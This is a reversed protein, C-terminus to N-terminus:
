CNMAFTTFFIPRVDTDTNSEARKLNRKVIIFVKVPSKSYFSPHEEAGTMMIRLTYRSSMFVYYMTIASSSAVVM